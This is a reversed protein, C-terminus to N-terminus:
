SPRVAASPFRSLAEMFLALSKGHSNLRPALLRVSDTSSSLDDVLSPGKGCFVAEGRLLLLFSVDRSSLPSFFCVFLILVFFCIGVPCRFFRQQGFLFYPLAQEIDLFQESLAVRERVDTRASCLISTHTRTLRGARVVSNGYRSTGIDGSAVM